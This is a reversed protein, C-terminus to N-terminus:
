RQMNGHEESGKQKICKDMKISWEYYSKDSIGNNYYESCKHNCDICICNNM